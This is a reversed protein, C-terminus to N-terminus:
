WLKYPYTFSKRRCVGTRPGCIHGVEVADGDEVCSQLLITRCTGNHPQHSLIRFGHTVMSQNLLEEERTSFVVASGKGAACVRSIHRLYQEEKMSMSWLDDLLFLFTRNEFWRFATAVASGVTKSQRIDSAFQSGGSTHVATALGDIFTKDDAAAGLHFVYIGDTFRSRSTRDHCLARLICTKGVDPMGQIGVVAYDQEAEKPFAPEHARSYAGSETKTVIKRIKGFLLGRTPLAHRAKAERPPLLDKPDDVSVGMFVHRPNEWVEFHPTFLEPGANETMTPAEGHPAKGVNRTRAEDTARSYGAADNNVAVDKAINVAREVQDVLRAILVSRRQQMDASDENTVHDHNEIGTRRSIQKMAHAVEAPTIRERASREIFNEAVFVNQGNENATKFLADSRCTRIDLRYFVPILIPVRAYKERAEQERKQFRMLEIMTWARAPFEPSLIFLGVLATDMADQMVQPADDGVHLEERDVFAHINRQRLRKYVPIAITEKDTGAHSIFVSYDRNM